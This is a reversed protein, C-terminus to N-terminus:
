HNGSFTVSLSLNFRTSDRYSSRSPSRTLVHQLKRDLVLVYQENDVTLWQEMQPKVFNAQLLKSLGKQCSLCRILLAVGMSGLAMLAQLEITGPLSSEMRTMFSTTSSTKSTTSPISILDIFHELCTRHDIAEDLLTLALTRIKSDNDHLKSVLCDVPWTQDPRLMSRLHRVALYRVVLSKSALVSCLISLTPTQEQKDKLSTTSSSSTTATTTKSQQSSTLSSSLFELEHPITKNYDLSTLILRILDDRGDIDCLKVLYKYLRHHHLLEQGRESRSLIGLLTFYERTLTKLLVDRSLPSESDATGNQNRQIESAFLEGVHKLFPHEQLYSKGVDNDILAEFLQCAVRVYITTEPSDKLKSFLGKQPKYFSLLRAFFKTKLAISLLSPNRLPGELLELAEELHWHAYEPAAYQLVGTEKLKILLTEEDMLWDMKRKVESM